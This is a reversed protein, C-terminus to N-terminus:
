TTLQAGVDGLALYTLGSFAAETRGMDAFLTEADTFSIGLNLKVALDSLIQLETKADGMPAFAAHIRQIRGDINTFSGDKEAYVASPLVIDSLQATRNRNTGVFVCLDLNTVAEKVIAEGFLEVLDQTFIILTKLQKKRALSLVRQAGEPIGM